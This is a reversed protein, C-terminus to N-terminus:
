DSQVITCHRRQGQLLNTLDFESPYLSSVIWIDLPHAMVEWKYRKMKFLLEHWFLLLLYRVTLFYYLFPSIVPIHKVQLRLSMNSLRDDPIHFCWLNQCLWHWLSGFYFGLHSASVREEEFSILGEDDDSELEEPAESILANLETNASRSKLLSLIRQLPSQGDGPPLAEQQELNDSQKKAFNVFVQAAFFFTFSSFILKIHTLTGTM